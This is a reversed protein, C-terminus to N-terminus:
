RYSVGHQYPIAASLLAGLADPLLRERVQSVPLWALKTDSDLGVTTLDLRTVAAAQTDTLQARSALIIQHIDAGNFKYFAEVTGAPILEVDTLRLEERLERKAAVVGSEGFKVAGGPLKYRQADGTEPTVLVNDGHLLIVAARLIFRADPHVWFRLDNDEQVM